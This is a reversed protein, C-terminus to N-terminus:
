RGGGSPKEVVRARDQSLAVVYPVLEPLLVFRRADRGRGTRLIPRGLRHKFALRSITSHQGMLQPQDYGLAAEMEAPRWARESLLVLEKQEATRLRTWWRAVNAPVEVLTPPAAAEPSAVDTLPPKPFPPPLPGGFLLTEIVAVRADAQELEITLGRHHIRM